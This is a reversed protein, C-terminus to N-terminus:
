IKQLDIVTIEPMIGVRGPYGLFGLGRNVYLHQSSQSYLGAWENYVYQVPSWKFGPIEIGFQMGHTHGSLTLHIYPFESLVQGTWHSPDHSLLINFGQPEFDKTAKHLDGYKPFRMHTSWNQVGILGIKQGQNELYQHSDLMLNWGMEAHIEKLRNLNNVKDTASDWQHYDGYDHNGLISFVGHPAKIKSFLEIFPEAEVSRENVLDGTFFIVDPKLNLIMEVAREVKHQFTFSGTHLDSIQVIRYGNFKEPIGKHKVNVSRVTYNYAGRMMGYIMSGFPIAAVLMGTKVIFENRSIKEATVSDEYAQSTENISAWTMRVLRVFDDIVLFVVFFLKSFYLIVVFAFSYTRFVTSWKHYDYFLSALIICYCLVNLSWFIITGSRIGIFSSSRLAVRIGSFLYVDILILLLLTILIRVVM